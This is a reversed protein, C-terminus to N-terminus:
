KWDPYFLGGNGNPDLIEVAAVRPLSGLEHVLEKRLNHRCTNHSQFISMVELDPGEKFEPEERWVRVVWRGFIYRTMTEYIPNM